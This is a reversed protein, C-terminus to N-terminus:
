ATAPSAEGVGKQPPEHFWLSLVQSVWSHDIQQSQGPGGRLQM